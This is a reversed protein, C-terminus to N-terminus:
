HGFAFYLGAAVLLVGLVRVRWPLSAQYFAVVKRPRERLEDTGDWKTLYPRWVAMYTGFEWRAVRRAFVVVALGILAVLLGVVTPTM